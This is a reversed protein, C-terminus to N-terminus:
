YLPIEEERGRFIKRYTDYQSYIEMGAREYLAVPNTTNEARVGLSARTYGHQQLTYFSNKLLAMGLGRKRWPIRVGLRNIWVTGPQDTGWPMNICVGAIQNGQYAILWLNPNFDARDFFHKSWGEFTDQVSTDGSQIFAEQEAEYVARADRERDFPRLTIGEPLPWAEFPQNLPITMRYSSRILRYHEATMLAVNGTMGTLLYRQAFIPKDTSLQAQARKLFNAEGAEYLVRGIGQRRYDPHMCGWGWTFMKESVDLGIYSYGLIQGNSAEAIICDDEPHCYFMDFEERLSEPTYREEEGDVDCCQNVVDVLMPLDNWRFPRLTFDSKEVM